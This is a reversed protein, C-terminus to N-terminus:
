EDPSGNKVKPTVDHLDIVAIENINVAVSVTFKNGLRSSTASEDPNFGIFPAGNSMMESINAMMKSRLIEEDYSYRIIRGSKLKIEINYAVVKAM